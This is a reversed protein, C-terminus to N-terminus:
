LLIKIIKVADKMNEQLLLGDEASFLSKLYFTENM